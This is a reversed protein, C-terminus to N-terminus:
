RNIIMTYVPAKRSRDVFIYATGDSCFNAVEAGGGDELQVWNDIQLLLRGAPVGQAGNATWYPVGGFKTRWESAWDHPHAIEDPLGDHLGYDYFASELEAPAGDDAIRWDAVVLEPLIEPAGDEAHAPPATPGDALEARPVTFVANAGGDEEWFSCISDWECKFAYLVEDAQLPLAPSAEDAAPGPAQLLHSMPRGCEACLPWRAVPLGWPLGGLKHALGQAAVARYRPYHSLM